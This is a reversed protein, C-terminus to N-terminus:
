READAQALARHIALWARLPQDMERALATPPVVLVPCVAHAACYGLIRARGLRRFLGRRGAGVVLLDDDRDAIQTLVLQAPGRAVVPEVDVDPPIGGFAADFASRLREQADETWMRRLDPEPFRNEPLYGGPPIWAHVAVLMARRTRAEAVARRLAQLGRVSGSVGVVVRGPPAQPRSTTSM